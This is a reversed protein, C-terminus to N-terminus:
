FSFLVHGLSGCAASYAVLYNKLCCIKLPYVEAKNRILRIMLKRSNLFVLLSTQVRSCFFSLTWLECDVNTVRRHAKDAWKISITLWLNLMIFTRGKFQTKNTVITVLAFLSSVSSLARPQKLWIIKALSLSQTGWVWHKELTVYPLTRLWM